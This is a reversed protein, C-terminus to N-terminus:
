PKKEVSWTLGITKLENCSISKVASKIDKETSITLSHDPNAKWSQKNKIIDFQIRNSQCSSIDCYMGIHRSPVGSRYVKRHEPPM